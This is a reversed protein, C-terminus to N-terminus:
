RPVIIVKSLRAISSSSRHWPQFARFAFFSQILDDPDDLHPTSEILCRVIVEFLPISLAKDIKAWLASCLKLHKLPAGSSSSWKPERDEIGM